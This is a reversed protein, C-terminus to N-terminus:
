LVETIITNKEIIALELPTMGTIKDVINVNPKFSKLMKEFIADHFNLRDNDDSNNDKSFGKYKM